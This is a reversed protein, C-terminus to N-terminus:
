QETLNVDMLILGCPLGTVPQYGNASLLTSLEAHIADDDEVIMIKGM